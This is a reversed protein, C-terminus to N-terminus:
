PIRAHKRCFAQKQTNLLEHLAPVIIIQKGERNTMYQRGIIEDKCNDDNRTKSVRPSGGEEPELKRRTENRTGPEEKGV